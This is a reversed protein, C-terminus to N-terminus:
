ERGGGGRKRQKTPYFEYIEGLMFFYITGGGWEVFSCDQLGMLLIFVQRCLSLRMDPDIVTSHKRLTEVLTEPFEKLEEQYCKAM